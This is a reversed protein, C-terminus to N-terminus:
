APTAEPGSEVPPEPPAPPPPPAVTEAAATATLQQYASAWPAVYLTLVASQVLGLIPAAVVLWPWFRHLFEDPGAIKSLESWSGALSLGVVILLILGVVMELAMVLLTALLAMGLLRLSSGKTLSWSEFLVLRRGAFTMPWAMSLRLLAWVIAVLGAIVTLIGIAIGAVKGAAFYTLFGVLVGAIVAVFYVIYWGIVFIVTLLLMWGESAGVRLYFGRRAQPELVARFIAAAVLTQALVQLVFTGFNAAMMRMQMAMVQAFAEPDQAAASQNLESMRAIDGILPLYLGILPAIMLVLLVVGWVAVSAPERGLLNWGAVAATTASFRKAM